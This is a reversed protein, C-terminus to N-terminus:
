DAGESIIQSLDKMIAAKGREMEPKHHPHRLHANWRKDDQSFIYKRIIHGIAKTVM